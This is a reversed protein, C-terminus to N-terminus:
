RWNRLSLGQICHGCQLVAPLKMRSPFIGDLLLNLRFHLDQRLFIESSMRNFLRKSSFITLLDRMSEQADGTVVLSDRSM